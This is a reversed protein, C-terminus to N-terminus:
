GAPTAEPTETPVPTPLQPQEVVKNDEILFYPELELSEDVVFPKVGDLEPSIIVADPGGLENGGLGTYWRLDGAPTLVIHVHSDEKDGRAWLLIPNAPDIEYEKGDSNVNVKGDNTMTITADVTIGNADEITLNYERPMVQWVKIWSPQEAPKLGMEQCFNPIETLAWHAGEKWILSDLDDYDNIKHQGDIEIVDGGQWKAWQLMHQACPVDWLPVQGHVNGLVQGYSTILTTRWDGTSRQERLFNVTETTLRNAPGSGTESRLLQWCADSIDGDGFSYAEGNPGDWGSSDSPCADKVLDFVLGLADLAAQEDAYKTGDVVKGFVSYAEQGPKAGVMGTFEYSISYGVDVTATPMPTPLPMPTPEAGCAAVGCALALAFFFGFLRKM